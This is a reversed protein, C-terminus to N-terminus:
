ICTCELRTCRYASRLNYWAQSVLNCNCCHLPELDSVLFAGEAEGITFLRCGGEDRTSAAANAMARLVPKIVDKNLIADKINIDPVTGEGKTRFITGSERVRRRLEVVGDWADPVHQLSVAMARSTRWKGLGESSRILFARCSVLM